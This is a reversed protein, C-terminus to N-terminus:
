QQLSRITCALSDYDFNSIDINLSKYMKFPTIYLSFLNEKDAYIKAVPKNNKFLQLRDKNLYNM